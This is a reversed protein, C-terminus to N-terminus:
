LGLDLCLLTVVSVFYAVLHFLYFSGFCGEWFFAVECSPSLFLFGVFFVVLTVPLAFSLFFGFWLTLCCLCLSFLGWLGPVLLFESFLVMIEMLGLLLVLELVRSFSSFFLWLNM